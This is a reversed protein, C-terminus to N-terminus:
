RGVETNAAAAEAETQMREVLQARARHVLSKVSATSTELIDAVEAYSHGEVVALWLASRQREPIEGLAAEMKAKERRADAVEDQAPLPSVLAVVNSKRDSGDGSRRDGDSPSDATFHPNRNRARDLENLALNRGIRFLWTSFAADPSYRDRAGHVRIFTDQLLEEATAPNKVIRELYRLLPAAWKEYLKSLADRDGERFSLMLRADQDIPQM